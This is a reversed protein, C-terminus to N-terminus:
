SITTIVEGPNNHKITDNADAFFWDLPAAASIGSLTDAQGNAHVTSANLLYSGNLGGGSTLDNVRTNYQQQPTGTLDTRGWEAMIAELAALKQEYTTATASLDTYATSGGILIDGGSGAFLKSAGSGAILLDRGLGGTIQNTGGGGVVVNNATSGAVSLTDNGTGGGYIFAPVTIYYTTGMIRTSVLQITDNGAQGYILIHDSPKFSNGLSVGNVNVSIHGTSDAPTLTVSDNHPTGGVALSNGEMQVTQVSIAQTAAASTSDDDTATVTVTYAGPATYIHDVAVGTGNGATAPITQVATGDGWTIAYSFGAAQDTPSPSTAAFTFTRPQGPVSLAPGSLSATPPVANVQIATSATGQGGNSDTVQLAIPFSGNPQGPPNDLYRHSLSFPLAGAGFTFTQPSSGDGWNVVLTHTDLPDPDVINGTLTASSGENIPSTVAVNALTPPTNLHTLVVDQGTGGVYSIQFRQGNVLIVSGEHLGAFTGSIAAPGGDHLITFQDGVASLFSLSEALSGNLAIGGNAVLQSYGTGAATGALGISLTGSSGQVYNGNLILSGGSTAPAVQGNNSVNANVTGSSALTGNNLFVTNTNGSSGFITGPANQLAGGNQVTFCGSNWTATGNNILTRGDLTPNGSIAIGGNATLSSGQAGRVTSGQQIGGSWSWSFPGSVVFSDSGSLVGGLSLSSFTLPVPGGAVPSFDISSNGDTAWAGAHGQSDGVPGTFAVPCDVATSNALYPGAVTYSAGNGYAFGVADGTLGQSLTTVQDSLSLFTGADGTFSGSSVCAQGFGDLRLNGTQVVLSGTNNLVANLNANVGPDSGGRLLSGPNNFTAVAGVGSYGLGASDGALDFTGANNIVAGDGALLAGTATATAGAPIVLTRGDLTINGSLSAGGATTLSSSQPGRLTGGTWTFAGSVVFSDSGSLVGGLSLSSFTLTVPGGASPSFDVSSNGDTAWAGAHGQSDGVPGTFAVTDHLATFNARYPGAVTYSGGSGGFKVTDGSLGQTLTTVQEQLLLTTGPDGTFSGSSVCSQGFGEVVLQGTQVELSGTNNFVAAIGTSDSASVGGSLFHGSNNFTLPTGGLNLLQSSGLLNFTGYNNIVAGDGAYSPYGLGATVTTGAPIVLTRGDLTINGSLSAGGATTLSSGQPGRLTGGTWTFAGSVVFSDSGSLVGGLSLSSFTLTVPGGAAPSFDISSNGDTAWAGAHGQGDGVPGTFAVTDHLATFNARYPGAVTYSGGNGGFKVTDCSLGQTLTTVQDQLVLTTGPDGTFSGSSVCSQGFGEVVLQGTQVELSGTNNFVAAIGASDSVSVGGSLFHGSNNFTLPTGGLNLLQSSGLLDFTGYNNIVAGDGAYSPYGLGATVTTGAPIVLTRGDLTINGSLSGGGAATLSGPGALTGGTWTFAGNVTLVDGGTLTGAELKLSNVSHATGAVHTITVGPVDIDVADAAGPVLGTSWNSGVDWDGNGGVWTVSPVTRDELPELSLPLRVRPTVCRCTLVLPARSKPSRLWSALSM